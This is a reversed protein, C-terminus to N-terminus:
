DPHESHYNAKDLERESSRELKHVGSRKLVISKWPVQVFLETGSLLFMTYRGVGCILSRSLGNVSLGFLETKVRLLASVEEAACTFYMDQDAPLIVRASFPAHPCM